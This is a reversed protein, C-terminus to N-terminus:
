KSSNKEMRTSSMFRVPLVRISVTFPAFFRSRNNPIQLIRAKSRQKM